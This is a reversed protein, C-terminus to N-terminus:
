QCERRLLAIGLLTRRPQAPASQSFCAPPTRRCAADCVSIQQGPVSDPHVHDARCCAAAHNGSLPHWAPPPTVASRHMGPDLHTGSGYPTEPDATVPTGLVVVTSGCIGADATMTIDAPCTIIPDENDVVTVNFTCCVPAGSLGTACYEVETTGVPYDGSANQGANQNNTFAISGTPVEIEVTSTNACFNNIGNSCAIMTFDLDSGFNTVWGNWTAMPIVAGFTAGPNCDPTPQIVCAFIDVGDPGELSARESSAFSMDADVIWTLNVDGSTAQVAGSVTAVVPNAATLPNVTWSGMGSLNSFVPTVACQDTVPDPVTVLTPLPSPKVPPAIVPKPVKATSLVTTLVEPVCVIAPSLVKEFSIITVPFRSTLPVVVVKSVAVKFTSSM